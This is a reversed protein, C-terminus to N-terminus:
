PVTVMVENSPASENARTSADQTTVVYRYRGPPVNRDVFTTAPPRVSGIRTLSRGPAARYIVYAAADPAPSPKWSLRVEGRSPIAALDSPPAPPTTKAPTATAVVSAASTGTAAGETRIARVSYHYTVDNAMGRDVFSTEGPATRGVPAPAATPDPTRWIEYALRGTVPTGDVLRAPPQWALRVEADGAEARVATPPAPAAIFTVSARSSPGSVHGRTDTTIVVYTYRRGFTLDRQDTHVIRDRETGAPDSLPFTAIETYGPIRDKVLMASRPEGAGTDETRYLRAVGPDFLRTNDVRRRPLTWALEIGDHRATASLDTVARPARLQPAVPNGRKGCAALALLAVGVVAAHRARRRTM